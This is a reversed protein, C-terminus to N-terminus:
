LTTEILTFSTFKIPKDLHFSFYSVFFDLFQALHKQEYAIESILDFDSNNIKKIIEATPRPVIKLKRSGSHINDLYTGHDMAFRLTKIEPNFEPMIGFGLMQAYLLQFYIFYNFPNAPLENLKQLTELTAAYLEPNHDNDVQSQNISEIVMLAIALHELSNKIKRLGIQTEADSLLHLGANKKYFTIRTCNLPDITSGFKNKPKRAGKAILSIKGYDKTFASIIKSSDGFKRGQLIIADTSVIM